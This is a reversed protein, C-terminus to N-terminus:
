QEKYWAITRRLGDFLPTTAAIGLARARSVDLMRRPQGNPRSPDWAISGSYGVLAAIGRALEGISIETGTGLNLPAAEDYGAAVAILAAVADEVYLFERTPTGDGWLTVVPLQARVAETFARILAPIVHSTEADFNDRPGYLNAPLVSVINCGYQDRYARAMELLARKAIGYPANSEEPYGNWLESERFPVPAFKPYSCVTGVMVLKGAGSRRFAELVNLGMRLNDHFFLGPNSRNAGIGGCRAALHFVARAQGLLQVCAEANLLDVEGHSPAVVDQGDRRL